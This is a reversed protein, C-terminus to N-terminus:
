RCGATRRGGSSGARVRRRAPRPRPRALLEVDPAPMHVVGVAVRHDDVPTRRDRLREVPRGLLVRQVDRQAAAETVRAAVERRVLVLVEHVRGLRGGGALQELLLDLPGADARHAVDDRGDLGLLVLDHAAPEAPGHAHLSTRAGPLGGDAQVPDGVEEVGVTLPEGTGAGEDDPRVLGEQVVDLLDQGGQALQRDALARHVVQDGVDLHAARSSAGAATMLPSARM